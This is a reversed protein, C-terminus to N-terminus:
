LTTQLVLALLLPYHDSGTASSNVQQMIPTIPGRTLVWDIARKCPPWHSRATRLKLDAFPNRFGREAALRANCGATLDFNFDGAVIVPVDMGYQLTDNLVEALQSRRLDDGNRSELHLNYVVLTTDGITAHSLLAMRGGLRRQFHPLPPIWRKPKWFTSQSRLRLVQPDTLPWRSLTAQGHYAARDRSGQGLEQFEVGFVYNLNLKQALHEAINRNASRRADKDVEQLLLLDANANLLFKAIEDLECGRAINWSVVRIIRPQKASGQQPALSGTEIQEISM